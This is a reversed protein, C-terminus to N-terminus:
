AQFLDDAPFFAAIPVRLLRSLAPLEYAPILGHQEWYSIEQQERDLATAVQAQTLGAALRCAKLQRATYRTIRAKRHRDGESM